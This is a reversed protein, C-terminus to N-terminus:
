LFDKEKAIQWLHVFAPALEESRSHIWTSIEQAGFWDGGEIEEPHLEFPGESRTRYVWVFEQDTEACAAIKFMREPATELQLGIEEFVERVAAADYDEGRDVHGSTSSDWRGPHSDKSQSRKQLFVEGAGNFVLIHVSRHLLKKRHVASRTETGIVQDSLDVVDFIEEGIM